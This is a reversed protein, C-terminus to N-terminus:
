IFRVRYILRHPFFLSPSPSLSLSLFRLASAPLIIAEFAVIVLRM